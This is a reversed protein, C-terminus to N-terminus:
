IVLPPYTPGSNCTEKFPHEWPDGPPHLQYNNTM